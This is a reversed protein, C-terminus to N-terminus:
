GYYVGGMVPIDEFGMACMSVVTDQFSLYPKGSEMDTHGMLQSIM